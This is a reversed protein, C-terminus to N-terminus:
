LFSSANGLSMFVRRELKCDGWLHSRQRLKGGKDSQTQIEKVIQLSQIAIFKEAKDGEDMYYIDQRFRAATKSLWATTWASHSWRMAVPIEVPPLTQRPIPAICSVREWAWVLLM